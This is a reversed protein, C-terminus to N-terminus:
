TKAHAATKQKMQKWIKLNPFNINQAVVKKIYM